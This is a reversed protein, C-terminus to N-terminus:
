LLGIKIKEELVKKYEDIYDFTTIVINEGVLDISQIDEYRDLQADKIKKAFPMIKDKIKQVRLGLKARDNEFKEIQESIGRGEKVLRDKEILLKAIKKDQMIIQRKDNLLSMPKEGSIINQIFTIIQKLM